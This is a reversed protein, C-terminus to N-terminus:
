INRGNQTGGKRQLTAVLLQLAHLIIIWFGVTIYQNVPIIYLTLTYLFIFTCAFNTLKEYHDKSAIPRYKSPIPGIHHCILICALLALLQIYMPFSILPLIYISLWLYLISTALCKFYTYFHIGGTTSRLFVMILLGFLYLMMKDHFLIGMIVIKSLESGLTKFLFFIQAIQYSSLHYKEKLCSKLRKTFRLKITELRLIEKTLKINRIMLVIGM